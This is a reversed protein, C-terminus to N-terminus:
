RTVAISARVLRILLKRPPAYEVWVHRRQVIWFVRIRDGYVPRGDVRSVVRYEPWTQMGPTAWVFRQNSAQPPAPIILAAGNQGPHPFGARALVRRLWFADPSCRSWPERCTPLGLILALLLTM